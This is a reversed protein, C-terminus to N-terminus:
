VKRVPLADTLFEQEIKVADKIIEIVREKWRNRDNEVVLPVLEVPIIGPIIGYWTYIPEKPHNKSWIITCWALLIATSVKTVHSSNTKLGGFREPVTIGHFGMDGCKKM